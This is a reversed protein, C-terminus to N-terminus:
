ASGSNAVLAAVNHRGGDVTTGWAWLQVTRDLAVDVIRARNVTDDGLPRDNVIIAALAGLSASTANTGDRTRNKNLRGETSSRAWDQRVVDWAVHVSAWAWRDGARVLAWIAEANNVAALSALTELKDRDRSHAVSSVLVSIGLRSTVLVDDWAGVKLRV